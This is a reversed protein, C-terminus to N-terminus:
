IPSSGFINWKLIGQVCAWYKGSLSKRCDIVMHENRGWAALGEKGPVEEDHPLCVWCLLLYHDPLSSSKLISETPLCCLHWQHVAFQYLLCRLFLNNMVCHTIQFSLSKCQFEWWLILVNDLFSIILVPLHILKHISGIGLAIHLNCLFAAGFFRTCPLSFFCFLSFLFFSRANSYSFNGSWHWTFLALSFSVAILNSNNEEVKQWNHHKNQTKVKEKM